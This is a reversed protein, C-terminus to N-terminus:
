HFAGSKARTLSHIKKKLLPQNPTSWDRLRCNIFGTSCGNFYQCKSDSCHFLPKIVHCPWFLPSQFLALTALILKLMFISILFHYKPQFAHLAKGTNSHPQVHFKLAIYAPTHAHHRSVSLRIFMDTYTLHLSAESLLVLLHHSPAAYRGNQFQCRCHWPCGTPTECHKYLQYHVHQFIRPVPLIMKKQRVEKEWLMQQYSCKM